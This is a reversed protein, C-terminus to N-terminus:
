RWSEVRGPLVRPLGLYEACRAGVGLRAEVVHVEVVHVEVVHVRVAHVRM